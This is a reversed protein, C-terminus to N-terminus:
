RENRVENVSEYGAETIFGNLQQEECHLEPLLADIRVRAKLSRGFLDEPTL